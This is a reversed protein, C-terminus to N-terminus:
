RIRALLGHSNERTFPSLRRRRFFLLLLTADRSKGRLIRRARLVQRVGRLRSLADRKPVRRPKFRDTGGVKRCTCLAFLTCFGALSAGEGRKRGRGGKVREEEVQANKKKRRRRRKRRFCGGKAGRSSFFSPDWRRLRGADGKYDLLNVKNINM